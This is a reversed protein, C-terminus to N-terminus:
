PQILKLLAQDHHHRITCENDFFMTTGNAQTYAEWNPLGAHNPNGTRAFQIWAQSVQKALVYAEPGGGTMEECRAINNFVFPLEMCHLAKYKGNMVPSQWTFLYMYVPAGGTVASKTNAEFVSGPRFLVDVDMLDSPM